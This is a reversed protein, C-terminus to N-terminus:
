KVTYVVYDARKADGGEPAVTDINGVPLMTTVVVRRGPLRRRVRQVAGSGFDSHFAGNYHVVPGPSRGTRELEAAISEAMTEDKICQSFYYRENMARREEATQEETGPMPHSNMTEAFRDFYTDFPCQIDRAILAREAPPLADLAALGGKAVASAYKRPVNSAIVPWGNARAIEVLSRYDTAYRPWPRSQKLFEGEPITRALYGDVLSQVDREFMELSVTARTDRRLLGQLIAAELRHTNPDDHQEGVFVVDARALEALMAEFDSFAKRNTDYVREPIYAASGVEPHGPPVAPQQSLLAVVTVAALAFYMFPM